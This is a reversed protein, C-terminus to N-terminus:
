VDKNNKLIATLNMGNFTGSSMILFVTKEQNDKPLSSILFEKLLDNSTFVKLKDNGFLQSIKEPSLPPLRKKELTHQSYYVIPVEVNNMSGKYEHIFNENLSSYTHLELCAVLKKDPFQERVAKVAAAVKSPSHAFDMYVIKNEDELIKELRKSAGKFTSIGKYFAEESLGAALCAYKAANLNRLNHEGFVLLPIEGFQTELITINNKIKAPHAQFAIKKPATSNNCVSTLNEDGDCYILTDSVMNAFIRFQEVYNEFTPFVDLHDWAMGGIIGINPQYLHFKPRRDIPSTLYEDGELVMIKATESLRVMSEFGELQAGVMYDCDINNQRLVHIIMSTTTTKGHNGGVVIRTKNKSHEYLYEPYSYIKINLEKARLLEPNDIRSHMGLIIADLDPTIKNTDWGISDPLLGHKQLNSKSPDSIEDDSGTVHYGNLHLAIALNHMAAGGIAIFHIKKM